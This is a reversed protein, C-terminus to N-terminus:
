WLFLPVVIGICSIIYFPQTLLYQFSSCLITITITAQHSKALPNRIMIRIYCVHTSMILCSMQAVPNHEPDEKKYRKLSRHCRKM